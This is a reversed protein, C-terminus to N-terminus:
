SIEQRLKIKLAAEFERITEARLLFGNVLSGEYYKTAINNKDDFVIGNAIIGHKDLKLKWVDSM